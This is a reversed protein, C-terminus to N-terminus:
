IPQGGILHVKNVGPGLGGADSGMGSDVGKPRWVWNGKVAQDDSRGM